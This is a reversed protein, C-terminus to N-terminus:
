PPPGFGARRLARHGEDGLLGSIFEAAGDPDAAGRVVAAAYAVDPELRRPLRVAGLDGGAARVDTIYVFGADVAGQTLKGVIGTVDPEESAVNALIEDREAAPLRVLLDRAYAGVPVSPDGIAIELGPRALDALSHIRSDAPIAVVLSNTAFVAPREVLGEAHLELPLETNAAAFVDPELGQRIQAALHDSGAFSQRADIGTESAYATFASSLSAAASVVLGEDNGPGDDGGWSALLAAGALLIGVVLAANARRM